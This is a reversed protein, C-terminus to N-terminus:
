PKAEKGCKPCEAARPYLPFALLFGTVMALHVVALDDRCPVRAQWACLLYGCLCALAVGALGFELLWGAWTRGRPPLGAFRRLLANEEILLSVDDLLAANCRVLRRRDRILRVLVDKDMRVDTGSQGAAREVAAELEAVAWRDTLKMDRM